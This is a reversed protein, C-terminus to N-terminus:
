RPVLRYVFVQELEAPDRRFISQEVWAKGFAALEREDTVREAYLEYLGGDVRLRVGSDAKINKVWRTESDGANVYLRGGLITYGVNVSYPDEPRTELQATGHSGAFSWDSPAAAPEGELKGGPVVAVPGNCGLLAAILLPVLIRLSM